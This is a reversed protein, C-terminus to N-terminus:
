KRASTLFSRIADRLKREAKLRREGTSREVSRALQRLHTRDAQGFERLFSDIGADGEGVLRVVWAAELNNDEAAAGARDPLTGHELLALVQTQISSWDCDRLASRVLGLQRRRARDNELVRALAVAEHLEAPLELQSLKKENLRTLDASLRKLTDEIARNARKIDTRSVLDEPAEESVATTRVSPRAM